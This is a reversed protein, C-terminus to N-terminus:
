IVYGDSDSFASRSGVTLPKVLHFRLLSNEMVTLARLCDDDEVKKKM